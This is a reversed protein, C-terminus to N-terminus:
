IRIDHELPKELLNKINQMKTKSKKRETRNRPPQNAEEEIRWQYSKKKKKIKQM